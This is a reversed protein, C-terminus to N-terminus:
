RGKCMESMSDVTRVMPWRYHPHLGVIVDDFTCNYHEKLRKGLPGKLAKKLNEAYLISIVLDEHERFIPRDLYEHPGLNIRANMQYDSKDLSEHRSKLRTVGNKTNIKGFYEEGKKTILVYMISAPHINSSQIYELPLVPPRDYDSSPGNFLPLQEDRINPM